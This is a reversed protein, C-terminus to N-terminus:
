HTTALSSIFCCEFLRTHMFLLKCETTLNWSRIDELVTPWPVPSRLRTSSTNQMPSYKNQCNPAIEVSIGAVAVAHGGM